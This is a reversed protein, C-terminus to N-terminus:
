SARPGNLYSGARLLKRASRTGSDFENWLKFIKTQLERFKKRQIRKLKKESVLRIQVSTRSAKRHLLRILLYLPLKSKGPTRRNLGLHWGEIDNNTRVSKMYVSWSSPKWTDGTIWNRRVYDMLQQFSVPTASEIIGSFVATANSAKNDLGFQNM